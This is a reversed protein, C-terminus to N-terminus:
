ASSVATAPRAIRSDHRSATASPTRVASRPPWTPVLSNVSSTIRRTRVFSSTQDVRYLSSRTTATRRERFRSPSASSAPNGRTSSRRRWTPISSRVPAATSRKPPRSSACLGGPVAPGLDDRRLQGGSRPHTGRAPDGVRCARDPLRRRGLARPPPSGGADGGAVGPRSRRDTGRDRRAGAGRVARGRHAPRAQEVGRLPRRAQRHRAADGRAPARTLQSEDCDLRLGVEYAM